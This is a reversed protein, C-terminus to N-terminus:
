KNRRLNETGDMVCLEGSNLAVAGSSLRVRVQNYLYKDASRLVAQDRTTHHTTRGQGNAPTGM